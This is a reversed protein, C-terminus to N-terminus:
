CSGFVYIFIIADDQNFGELSKRSSKLYFGGCPSRHGQVTQSRDVGRATEIEVGKQKEKYSFGFLMILVPREERKGKRQSVGRGGQCTTRGESGQPLRAQIGWGRWVLNCKVNEVTQGNLCNRGRCLITLWLRPPSRRSQKCGGWHRTLAWCM